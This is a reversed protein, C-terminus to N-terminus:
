VLGCGPSSHRIKCTWVLSIESINLKDRLTYKFENNFISVDESRGRFDEPLRRYDDSFKPFHEAVNTHGESLNRLIKPFRLFTTRLRRFITL